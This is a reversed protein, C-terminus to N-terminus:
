PMAAYGALANSQACNLHPARLPKPQFVTLGGLAIIREIPIRDGIEGIATVSVFLGYPRLAERAQSM